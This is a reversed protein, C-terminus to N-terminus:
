RPLEKQTNTKRAPKKVLTDSPASSTNHDMQTPIQPVDVIRGVYRFLHAASISAFFVIAFCAPFNDTGAMVIASLYQFVTMALMTRIYTRSKMRRVSM